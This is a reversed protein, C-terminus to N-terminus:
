KKYFKKSEYIERKVEFQLVAKDLGGISFVYKNDVSFKVNTVHESHGKFSKFKSNEKPCPYKFLKVLKKDDGSVLLKSDNSCDVANIDTGDVGDKSWIGQVSWGLTCSYGAWQADRMETASTIQKGNKTNWFLLEYDGSVSQMHCDDISFNLSAIFSHHGICKSRCSYSKTDLIYITCDHAGVALLSGDVSYQLAQILTTSLTTTNCVQDLKENLILVKGSITGVAVQSGDNSKYAV